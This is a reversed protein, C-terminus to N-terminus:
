FTLFFFSIRLTFIFNTQNFEFNLIHCYDLYSLFNPLVGFTVPRWSTPLMTLGGSNILPFLPIKFVEITSLVM